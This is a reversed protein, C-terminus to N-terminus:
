VRNKKFRAIFSKLADMNVSPLLRFKREGVKSLKQNELVQFFNFNVM